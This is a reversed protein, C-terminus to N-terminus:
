VSKVTKFHIFGSCFNFQVHDQSSHLAWPPPMSLPTHLTCGPAPSGVWPHAPPPTYRSAQLWTRPTDVIQREDSSGRKLDIVPALVTSQKTRQARFDDFVLFLTSLSWILIWIVQLLAKKKTEAVFRDSILSVIKFCYGKLEIIVIVMYWNRKRVVCIEIKIFLNVSLNAATLNEYSIICQFVRHKSMSFNSVLM